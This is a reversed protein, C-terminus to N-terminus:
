GRSAGGHILTFYDCPELNAKGNSDLDPLLVPQYGSLMSGIRLEKEIGRCEQSAGGNVMAVTWDYQM